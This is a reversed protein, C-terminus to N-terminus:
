TSLKNTVDAQKCSLRNKFKEKVPKLKESNIKKTLGSEMMKVVSTVSLLLLIMMVMFYFDYVLSEM